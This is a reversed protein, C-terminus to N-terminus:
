FEQSVRFSLCPLSRGGIGTDPAVTPGMWLFSTMLAAIMAWFPESSREHM